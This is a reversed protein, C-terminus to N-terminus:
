SHDALNEILSLPIRKRRLAYELLNKTNGIHNVYCIVTDCSDIMYQNARIIAYKHPVGSLSPFFTGDFGEPTEIAREAPHYPLLLYLFLDSYKRKISKVASSAISDFTGHNGVYFHRVGYESYHRLVAKEIDSQIKFPCDHHGFLFCCKM